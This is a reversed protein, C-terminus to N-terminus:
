IKDDAHSSIGFKMTERLGSNHLLFMPGSMLNTYSFGVGSRGKLLFSAGEEASGTVNQYYTTASGNGKLCLTTRGLIARDHHVLLPVRLLFHFLSTRM